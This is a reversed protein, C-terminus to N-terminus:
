QKRFASPSVGAYAKFIRSFYNEYTFGSMQAIEKIPYDTTLLLEKAYELRKASLYESFGVGMENKFLRSLTYNSIQFQDAVQPQSLNPDRFNEELYALVSQLMAQQRSARADATEAAVALKQRKKRRQEMCSRLSLQIDELRDFVKGAYLAGEDAGTERLWGQVLRQLATTDPQDLFCILVSCGDEDWDTAFVRAHCTKALKQTLQAMEQNVFSYGDMLFVCYYRISEPIGLQQIRQASIPVGYLLHNMLLDLILMQQEDIRSAHDHLRSRITDFENGGAYDLDDTLALVPRYSIYIAVIATLTLVAVIGFLLLSIQNVLELLTDQTANQVVYAVISIEPYRSPLDYRVRHQVGMTTEWGDRQLVSQADEEPLDGWSLLVRQTEELLYFAIGEGGVIALSNAVNEGSLVYFVLAPDNTLGIRTCVGVLLNGSGNDDSATTAFLTDLLSYRDSSFFDACPSAAGKVGTYKYLFDDLQYSYHATVIRGSDYLYIGWESVDTRSYREQLELTLAYIQYPDLEAAGSQMVSDHERSAARLHAAFSELEQIRADLLSTYTHLATRYSNENTKEWGSLAYQRFVAFGIMAPLLLGLLVVLTLRWLYERRKM